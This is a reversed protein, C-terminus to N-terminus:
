PLVAARQSLLEAARDGPTFAEQVISLKLPSDEYKEYGYSKGGNAATHVFVFEVSKLRNPIRAGFWRKDDSQTWTVLSLAAGPPYDHEAHTRAYQVAADNGYLTSMTSDTTDLSASVVRWQLPNAPLKGVLAAGENLTPSLPPASNSCGTLLLFCLIFFCALKGKSIM